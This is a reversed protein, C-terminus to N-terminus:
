NKAPDMPDSSRTYIQDHLKTIEAFETSKECDTRQTFSREIYSVKGENHQWPKITLPEFGTQEIFNNLLCTWVARISEDFSGMLGTKTVAQFFSDSLREIAATELAWADSMPSPGFYAAPQIVWSRRGALFHHRNIEVMAEAQKQARRVDAATPDRHDPLLLGLFIGRIIADQKEDFKRLLTQACFGKSDDKQIIGVYDAHVDPIMHDAIWNRKGMLSAKLLFRISAEGNWTLESKFQAEAQNGPNFYKPFNRAFEGGSNKEPAKKGPLLERRFYIRFRNLRYDGVGDSHINLARFQAM